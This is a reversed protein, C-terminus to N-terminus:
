TCTASAEAIMPSSPTPLRRFDATLQCVLTVLRLHGFPSVWGCPYGASFEYARPPSGASSFCRLLCLFLFLGLNRFYRRAFDSWGTRKLQRDLPVNQFTRGYHTIAGYTFSRCHFQACSLYPPVRSIRDSSPPVM